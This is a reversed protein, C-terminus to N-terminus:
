SLRTKPGVHLFIYSLSRPIYTTCQPGNLSQVPHVTIFQLAAVRQVSVFMEVFPYDYDIHTANENLYLHATILRNYRLKRAHGM